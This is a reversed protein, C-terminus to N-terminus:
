LRFCKANSTITVSASFALPITLFFQSLYMGIKLSDGHNKSNEM